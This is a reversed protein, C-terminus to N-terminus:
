EKIRMRTPRRRDIEVVGARELLAAVWGATARKYFRKLYEDLTGPSGNVDFVGGIPVWGSSAFHDRAGELVDWSIFTPTEKKGFLM